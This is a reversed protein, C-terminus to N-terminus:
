INIPTHKTLYDQYNIKINGKSDRDSTKIKKKISERKKPKNEEIIQQKVPEKVIEKVINNQKNNKNAKRFHYMLASRSIGYKEAIAEGSKKSLIYEQIALKIKEGSYSVRDYKVM